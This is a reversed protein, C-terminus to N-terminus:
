CCSMLKLVDEEDFCTHVNSSTVSVGGLLPTMVTRLVVPTFFLSLCVLSQMRGDVSAGCLLLPKQCGPAASYRVQTSAFCFAGHQSVM